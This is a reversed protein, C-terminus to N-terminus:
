YYTKIEKFEPLAARIGTCVFMGVVFLTGDITVRKTAFVSKSDTISLILTHTDAPLSEVFVSEVKSIQIPPKLFRPSSMYFAMMKQHREAMTKYVNKFNQTTHVIKKFVKHKGEFGMTWLHVLPGFCKILHPYHKIFHHKPRLQFNPFVEHLLQRHDAIKCAMYQITDDTFSHSVTLKVIDKLEMLVEWFRDGEPVRSGILVPLLRLLAHNEHGNGGITGRTAFTLPIPHPHDVKDSHQYPFSSIAKNLDELSFYTKTMLGKLCLALEVPVVGEFLDHLIDPPFGTIPHFFSLHDSLVCNRKVGYDNECGDNEIEQVLCDHQNKTRMECSSTASIQMVAKSTLCFRCWHSGMFSEKFGALGHAAPNDAAVCYFTGKLSQGLTEIYVGQEELTKLDNLLPAFVKAYGFTRVDNSNCLLALQMCHLASRYKLPLNALTWYVACTKYMKKSTGLPNVVEFDDVYLILPLNLGKSLLPNEQCYSGDRYSSYQGPHQTTAEQVKEFVAKKLVEQPSSLIPVYMYTHQSSEILYEVPKVPPFKAEHFSKRRKATSLPAESTISKHLINSESVAQVIDSVVTDTFPCNHKKLVKTVAEKVLPKSLSFLVDVHEIIDQTARESVHLITQMKLFLAALNYQLQDAVGETSSGAVPNSDNEDSFAEDLELEIDIDQSDNSENPVVILVDYDSANQHERCKHSNYTSYVNSKFRCDRFPCPVTQKLKLHGRLHLFMDREVFPQKFDCLPCHFASTYAVGHTDSGAVMRETVNPRHVRSM